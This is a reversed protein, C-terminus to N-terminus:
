DVPFLGGCPDLTDQRELMHASASFPFSFEHALYGGICGCMFQEPRCMISCITIRFMKGAKSSRETVLRILFRQLSGNGNMGWLVDRKLQTPSLSLHLGELAFDGGQAGM